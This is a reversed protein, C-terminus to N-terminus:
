NRSAPHNWNAEAFYRRAQDPRTGFNALLRRSTAAASFLGAVLINRHAPVAPAAPGPIRLTVPQAPALRAVAEAASTAAPSAADGSKVGPSWAADGLFTEALIDTDVPPPNKAAFSLIVGTSSPATASAAARGDWPIAAFFTETQLSYDPGPPPAPTVPGAAGPQAAVFAPEVANPAVLSAPPAASEAAQAPATKEDLAAAVLRCIDEFRQLQHSTWAPM